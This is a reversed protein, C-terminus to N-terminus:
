WSSTPRTNCWRASASSADPPARGRGTRDRVTAREFQKITFTVGLAALVALGHVLPQEVLTPAIGVAIALEGLSLAAVSMVMAPVVARSGSLRISEVAGFILGIALMPGWGIAYMVATIGFTQVAVRAWLRWGDHREGWLATTVCSTLFAVM